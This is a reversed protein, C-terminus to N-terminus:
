FIKSKDYHSLNKYNKLTKQMFNNNKVIKEKSKSTIREKKKKTVMNGSTNEYRTKEEDTDYQTGFEVTKTMTNGYQSNENINIITDNYIEQTEDIPTYQPINVQGDSKLYHPVDVPINVQGDSQFLTENIIQNNDIIMQKCHDVFDYDDEKFEQVELNQFLGGNPSM